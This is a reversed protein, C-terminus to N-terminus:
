PLSKGLIKNINLIFLTAATLVSLTDSIPEALIVAFVKNDIFRPLLYILPILLIVKRLCAIFLSIKAQGLALFTQQIACQVGYIFAAAMYTRLAWSATHILEPSNSNFLKVFQEAFLQVLGWLLVSYIVSARFLILFTKQVRERNGAGYNFSIIPQAGQSLGMIPMIHLQMVSSLITMAGVAADGGYHSLSSNFSINLASETVNMVFPSIGLAFVPLIVQRKVRFYNKRIRIKAKGGTLFKIVWLASVGQSIITALAAGQVGMNFGFILIPDLIINFVAGILVTKMGIHSFGQTNIFPNLGVTLMVFITGIIYTQMYTRAYPLTASSAGFLKLIPVQFISFAATLIVALFLLMVTCNGLIEEAKKVDGKGMYIAALPAGGMGVLATFATITMIIPFCLGLGSLAINGIEAIHGIYIRDVMNYLLNVMQAIISPVALQFLLRGVAGTSLNIESSKM